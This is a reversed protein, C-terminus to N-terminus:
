LCSVVQVLYHILANQMDIIKIKKFKIKLKKKNHEQVHLQTHMNAAKTAYYVTIIVIICYRQWVVHVEFAYVIGQSIDTSLFRRAGSSFSAFQESRLDGNYARARARAM